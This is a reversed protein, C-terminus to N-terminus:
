PGDLGTPRGATVLGGFIEPFATVEPRTVLRHRLGHIELRGGRRGLRHWTAALLELVGTDDGTLRHLDLVLHRVGAVALRDLVADLRIALDPADGPGDVTLHAEHRGTWM